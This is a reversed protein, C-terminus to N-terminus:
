LSFHINITVLIPISTTIAFKTISLAPNSFYELLEEIGGLVCPKRIGFVCCNEFDETNESGPSWVSLM